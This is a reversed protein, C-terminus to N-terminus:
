SGQLYARVLHEGRFHGLTLWRIYPDRGLLRKQIAPVGLGQAHLRRVEAGLEELYAIKRQLEPTPDERVTGSGQFLLTPELAAMRKLSAIIAQIDYDPRATRDRGGIFADGSFLWGREPEHLAIHDPSHGPTPIVRFRHRETEVWAGAALGASPQPWGWFLRRYPHLHQRRPNALIPLALPHALVRAGREKQLLANAGIHDEHGHTNVVQALPLGATALLLQRATHFCGSDVLLGDVWYAATQYFSHGLIPRSMIFAQVADYSQRQLM